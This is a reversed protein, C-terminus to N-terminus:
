AFPPEPAADDITAGLQSRVTKLSLPAESFLDSVLADIEAEVQQAEDTIARTEAAVESFLRDNKIPARRMFAAVDLRWPQELVNRSGSRAPPVGIATLFAEVTQRRHHHLSSARKALGALSQRNAESTRPIPVREMYQRYFRLRGGRNEDGLVACESKLYSFVPSSNLVALLFYDAFPINFVTYDTHMGDTDIVFRSDKGIDPYIIKPQDFFEYNNCPRLEWWKTGRADRVEATQRWEALHDLITPYREITVGIHTRILFRKRDHIEYRRVDDGMVLPKLIEANRPDRELLRQHTAEDIIFADNLGTKIGNFIRGGVVDKLRDSVAEMRARMSATHSTALRPGGQVFQGSPVVTGVRAVHRGIGEGYCLQLDDINAWITSESKRPRRHWVTIAPFTAAAEFVPLEGFDVILTTAHRDLLLHRLAEGYNSRLWKNSSIFCGAGGDGLLQHARAFFYVYLDCASQHVDAFHQKLVQTKYTAPILQYRIYPPNAIVIDFGKGPSAFVEPFHIRWDIAADDYHEQLAERLRVEICQVANRLDVKEDGHSQLYRRKAAVLGNAQAQLLGRFLDPMAQPDPALLSDGTEIKFDLNPLPVAEEAEVALSLWLRLMAISTAFPDIDVGYLNQSIIRLKLEYLSRADRTLRESYLLRYIAIMEHLLGLLYAGSGCAPDVAKLDDLAQLIARAHSESLGRVEHEDVLAAVAAEGAGTKEALVGKLAERCMFSVVPRPTYYSGSEHRGTVLEEFVKGLMEPDVAVEIDLPTSEEVTFNFRYFLGDPGVVRPFAADPIDAVKEDLPSREFLGGNLFPVSGIAVSRQRGEVALGEFFLPCLRSRYFSEEGLPGAEHLARLYNRDGEYELWGKREIFRLFMLRNFLSQAFLRLENKSLKSTKGIREEVDAFVAAYHEYFKKTVKEVDFAGAWQAVWAEPSTGADPWELSPLNFECATRAPVDPGWAFGALPATKGGGPPSKFYAFRFHRYDHTCIFLLNERRWVPLHSKGGRRLPVLGRLVKRLPGAMGRGTEFVDPRAFELLFIGWPTEQRARLQLVQGGLVDKDLDRARLEEATWGFSIDELKEADTPIDWQLGDILLRQIFSRQDRVQALAAEIDRANLM